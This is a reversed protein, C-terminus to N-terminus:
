VSYLKKNGVDIEVIYRSLFNVGLIVNFDIMDIIILDITIAHSKLFVIKTILM